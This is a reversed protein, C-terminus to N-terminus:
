LMMKQKTHDVISGPINLPKRMLVVISGINQAKFKQGPSKRNQIEPVIALHDSSTYFAGIYCKASAVLTTQEFTLNIASSKNRICISAQMKVNTCKWSM